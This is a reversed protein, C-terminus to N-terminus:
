RPQRGCVEARSGEEGGRQGATSARRLLRLHPAAPLEAQRCMRGLCGSGHQGTCACQQQPVLCLACACSWSKLWGPGLVDIWVDNGDGVQVKDPHMKLALKRYARKIQAETASRPM